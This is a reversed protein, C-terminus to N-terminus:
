QQWGYLLEKAAGLHQVFASTTSIVSNCDNVLALLDDGEADPPEIGHELLAKRYLVLQMKLKAVESRYNAHISDAVAAVQEHQEIM